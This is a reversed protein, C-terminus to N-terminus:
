NGRYSCRVKGISYIFPVLNKAHQSRQIFPLWEHSRQWNDLDPIRYNGRITNIGLSQKSLLAKNKTSLQCVGM